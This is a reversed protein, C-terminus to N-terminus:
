HVATSVTSDSPVTVPPNFTGRGCDALAYAFVLGNRIPATNQQEVGGAWESPEIAGSGPVPGATRAGEDGSADRNRTFRPM